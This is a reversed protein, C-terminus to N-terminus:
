HSLHGSALVALAIIIAIIACQRFFDRVGGAAKIQRETRDNLFSMLLAMVALTITLLGVTAQALAILDSSSGVDESCGAGALQERGEAPPRAPDWGPQELERADSAM